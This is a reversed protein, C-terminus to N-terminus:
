KKGLTEPIVTRTYIFYEYDDSNLERDRKQITADNWSEYFSVSEEHPEYSNRYSRTLQYIYM